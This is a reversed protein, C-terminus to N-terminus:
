SRGTYVGQLCKILEEAMQNWRYRNGAYRAMEATDVPFNFLLDIAADCRSASATIDRLDIDVGRLWQSADPDAQASQSGCIVPLGCAMAEQAVLPFGEGVSPLLLLDAARYLEAITQQSQTGMVLVNPLGWNGPSIPGRGILLFHLDPRRAAVARLIALGKKEVFRGVFILMRGDTMIGYRSRILARSAHTKPFFISTDVGNYLLMSNRRAPESMLKRRVHDSIFVRHNALAIMPRTVLVNALRMLGRLVRSRFGIDAIHQILIVPRGSAKALLAGIISTFYLSDHVIVADNARIAQALARIAALGPIPMPLGTLKETPDFCKLAITTFSASDDAAGSAAWSAQHGARAFERNLHAAVREIGGGHNEFFHSVTLIKV